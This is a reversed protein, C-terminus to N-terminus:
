AYEYYSAAQQADRRTAAETFRFNAGFFLLDVNGTAGGRVKPVVAITRSEDNPDPRHLLIIKDADAELQGSDRLHALTPMTNDAARNLQALAIVPVKFDKAIAKLGRSVSSVEDNRSGSTTGSMLQVYDVFVASLQGETRQLLRLSARMELLSLAPREDFHIPLAGGLGSGVRVDSWQADSLTATKIATSSVGGLLAVAREAQEHAAMEMSFFAVPGIEAARTAIQLALASKGIRPRAGILILQQPELGCLLRDLADIGTKIGPIGGGNAHREDLDEIVRSMLTKMSIFGGDARSTRTAIDLLRQSSADLFEGATGKHTQADRVIALAAAVTERMVAHDRVIKAYAAVNASSATTNLIGIMLDTGGAAQLKGTRELHSALTLVDFPQNADALDVIASFIARHEPRYFDAASVLTVIRDFAANDILLAGITAEEAAESYHAVPEINHPM